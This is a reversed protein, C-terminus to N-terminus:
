DVLLTELYVGGLFFICSLIPPADKDDLVPTVEAASSFHGEEVHVDSLM